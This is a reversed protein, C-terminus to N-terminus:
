HGPNRLIESDIRGFIEALRRVDEETNHIGFALRIYGARHTLVAQEELISGVADHLEKPYYMVIMGSMRDECEPTLVDFATKELSKRLSKELTRVHEQINDPGLELILELSSNMLTVGHMNITGAELRDRGSVFHFDRDDPTVEPASHYPGASTFGCYPPEIRDILDSRCWVFGIGLCSMLGKFGGCALYDINMEKVDIRIRGLAQIADVAFLTGNEHCLRGIEKLDSFYGTNAQVASIDVIKTHEDMLKLVDEPTVRGRTTKIVRVQYGRQKASNFWPFLNSQNEIDTTIVNDGPGLPYGASLMSVGETTNKTFVIEGPSGNILGALQERVRNRLRSYRGFDIGRAYDAYGDIYARSAEQTRLPPIGVMCVNVQIHNDDQLFAFEKQTLESNIM